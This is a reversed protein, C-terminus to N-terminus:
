IITEFMEREEEWASREAQLTRWGLWALVLAPIAVALVVLILAQVVALGLQRAMDSLAVGVFRVGVSTGIVVQALAILAPPLVAHSDSSQM